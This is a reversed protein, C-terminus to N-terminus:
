WFLFEEMIYHATDGLAAGLHATVVKKKKKKKLSKFHWMGPPEIRNTVAYSSGIAAAAGPGLILPQLLCPVSLGQGNRPASLWLQERQTQDLHPCAKPRAEPLIM